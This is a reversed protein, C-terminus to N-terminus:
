VLSSDNEKGKGTEIIYRMVPQRESRSAVVQFAPREYTSQIGTCREYPLLKTIRTQLPFSEVIRAERFQAYDIAARILLETM